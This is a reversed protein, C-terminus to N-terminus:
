IVSVLSDPCPKEGAGIRPFFVKFTTGRSPASEISIFGGAAEVIQRVITAALVPDPPEPAPTRSWSMFCRPKM